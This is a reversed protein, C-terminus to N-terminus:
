RDTEEPTVWARPIHVVRRGPPRGLDVWRAYRARWARDARRNALTLRARWGTRHMPRPPEGSTRTVLTAQVLQRGDLAEPLGRHGTVLGLMNETDPSDPSMEVVFSASSSVRTTVTPGTPEEVDDVGEHIFGVSGALFDPIGATPSLTSGSPMVYLAGGAAPVDQPPRKQTHDGTM